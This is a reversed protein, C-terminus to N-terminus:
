FVEMQVLITFVMCQYNACICIDSALQPIPSQHGPTKKKDLHRQYIDEDTDNHM